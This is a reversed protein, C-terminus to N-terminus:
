NLCVSGKLTSLPECVTISNQTTAIIGRQQGCHQINKQVTAWMVSFYEMQHQCRRDNKRTTPLLASFQELKLGHTHKEANSM